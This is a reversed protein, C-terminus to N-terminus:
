GAAGVRPNLLIYAIDSLLQSLAAVAVAVLTAAQLVAIDGFMAAEYLMRGFGSYQFFVEVVVVHSLLWNLQLFILTFPVILANRLAHGVIVHSGALGKLVATRIYNASMVEAMSARTMRVVYGIDYILLTLLPLVLERFSFGGVMASKAPVWGLGLSLFVTLLVATAIQPISTTVVAVISIVRDLRGGERMGALVGLTLSIPVMLVFFCSALIATRQLRDALLTSVAMNKEISRGLDGQMVDGVWTVYRSLFPENLGKKELWGEYDAANLTAVGFGGLESVAIQRRFQDTDFIAFLLLSTVGMILLMQGLRKAILRAM